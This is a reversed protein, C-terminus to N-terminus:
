ARLKRLEEQWRAWRKRAEARQAPPAANLLQVLGHLVQQRREREAPGLRAMDRAASALLLQQGAAHEGRSWARLGQLGLQQRAAWENGLAETRSPWAAALERAQQRLPRQLDGLWRELSSAFRKGREAAADPEQQRERWEDLRERMKTELHQWQAPRLSALLPAALPAARALTREMSATAEQELQLLEAESVGGEWLTDARALLAQWRPLEERRHWAHLEALAADLQQHQARDLDLYRDVWWAGLRPLQGYGFSLTSCAALLLCGLLLAIRNRM